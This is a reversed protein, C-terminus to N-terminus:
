VSGMRMALISTTDLSGNKAFIEMVSLQEWQAPTTPHKLQGTEPM